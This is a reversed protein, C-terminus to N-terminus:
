GPKPDDDPLANLMAQIRVISDSYYQRAQDDANVDLLSVKRYYDLAQELGERDGIPDFPYRCRIRGDEYVEALISSADIRDALETDKHEAIQELLDIGEAFKQDYEANEDEWQGRYRYESYQYGDRSQILIEAERLSAKIHRLKLAKKFHGDSRLKDEQTEAIKEGVLGARYNAEGPIEAWEDDDLAAAIGYCYLAAFLNLKEGDCKELAMGARLMFDYADDVDANIPTMNAVTLKPQFLFIGQMQM